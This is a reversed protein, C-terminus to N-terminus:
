YYLDYVDMQMSSRLRRSSKYVNESRSPVLEDRGTEGSERDGGRRQRVM